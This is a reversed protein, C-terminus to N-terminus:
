VNRRRDLLYKTRQIIVIMLNRLTEAPRSDFLPKWSGWDPHNKAFDRAATKKESAADWEAAGHSKLYDLYDELLEGLTARRCFVVAFPSPARVSLM